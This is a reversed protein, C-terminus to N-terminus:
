VHNVHPRLATITATHHHRFPRRLLDGFAFLREGAPIECGQQLQDAISYSYTVPPLISLTNSNCFRFAFPPRLNFLTRCSSRTGPMTYPCPNEGIMVWDGIFSIILATCPAPFCEGTCIEISPLFFSAM